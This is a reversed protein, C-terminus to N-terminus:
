IIADKANLSNVKTGSEGVRKIDLDVDMASLMYNSDSPSTTRIM